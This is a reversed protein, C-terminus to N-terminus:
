DGSSAELPEPEWADYGGAVRPVYSKVVLVICRGLFRRYKCRVFGTPSTIPGNPGSRM